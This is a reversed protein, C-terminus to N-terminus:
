RACDPSGGDPDNWHAAVPSSTSVEGAAAVGGGLLSAGVMVTAALILHLSTKRQM